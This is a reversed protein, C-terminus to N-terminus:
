YQANIHQHLPHSREPIENLQYSVLISIKIDLQKYRATGSTEM